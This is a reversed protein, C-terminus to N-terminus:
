EGSCFGMLRETSMTTLLLAQIQDQTDLVQLHQPLAIHPATLLTQQPYHLHAPYFEQKTGVLERPPSPVPSPSLLELRHHGASPLAPSHCGPFRKVPPCVISFCQNNNHRKLCFKNFSLSHDSSMKIDSHLFPETPTQILTVGGPLEAQSCTHQVNRRKQYGTRHVVSIHRRIM